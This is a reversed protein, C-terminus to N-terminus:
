HWWNFLYSVRATFTYINIDGNTIGGHLGGITFTRSPTFNYYDFAVGAVWGPTLQYDFGVGLTYGNDWDLTDASAGSATDRYFTHTRAFAWGVKGYVLWRDETWGLSVRRDRRSIQHGHRSLNAPAVASTKTEDYGTWSYAGELGIVWHGWQAQLGIQGGGVFSAPDFTFNESFVGNNFTYSGSSLGGGINGGIYFGDWNATIIASPARLMPVGMPVGGPM